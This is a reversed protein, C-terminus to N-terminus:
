CGTPKLKFNDVTTTLATINATGTQPQWGDKAVILNLPNNRVDLWLAYGGNADTHLTFSGSWTNIQVTAGPIPANSGHCARGMVTGAIKGWTSPPTVNMTVNIPANSSPTNSGVTLQATYTGPQNVAPGGANLTVTVTVSKGPQLTAHTPRV